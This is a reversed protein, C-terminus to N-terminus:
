FRTKTLNLEFGCCQMCLIFLIRLFFRYHLFASSRLRTQLKLRKTTRRVSDPFTSAFTCSLSSPWFTETLVLTDLDIPDGGLWDHRIYSGAVEGLYPDICPDGWSTGHEMCSSTPLECSLALLFQSHHDYASVDSIHNNILIDSNFPIYMLPLVNRFTFSIHQGDWLFDLSIASIQFASVRPTWAISWRLIKYWIM